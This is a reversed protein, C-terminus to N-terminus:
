ENRTAPILALVASFEELAAEPSVTAPALKAAGNRLCWAVIIEGAAVAGFFIALLPGTYSWDVRGGPTWLFLVLSSLVGGTSLLVCVWLGIQGGPIRFPRELIPDFKRLRFIAPYMLLYPLIFVASSSAFLAYFLDNETKLFIGAFLLVATAVIGTLVNAGAPAGSASEKMFIKPLEGNQAAEVASRNAGLFWPFIGIYLSYLLVIGLMWPIIFSVGGFITQYMVIMGSTLGLVKLPIVLLLAVVAIIQILVLLIGSFPLAWLMDKKPHKLEGALSSILEMGLFGYVITPLFVKASNFNPLMAHVTFHNAAYGRHLSLVVAGVFTALLLFAVCIASINTFLKGIKLKTFGIGVTVWVLIICILTQQFITASTWGLAVIAGTVLLYASPMWLAMNAWYWYSTRAAMRKGFARHIWDYLGGQYPYATSLELVILTSPLLFIVAGLLWWGVFSVGIAAWVTVNAGVMSVFIFGVIDRRGLVRSRPKHILDESRLIDM